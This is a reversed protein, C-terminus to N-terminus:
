SGLGEPHQPLASDARSSTPHHSLAPSQGGDQPAGVPWASAWVLGEGDDGAGSMVVSMDSSASSGSMDCPSAAGSAPWGAPSRHSSSRVRGGCRLSKGKGDDDDTQGELQTLRDKGLGQEPGLTEPGGDLLLPLTQALTQSLSVHSGECM